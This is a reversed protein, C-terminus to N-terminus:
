VDVGCGVLDFGIRGGVGVVVCVWVGFWWGDVWCIVRCGWVFNVCVYFNGDSM